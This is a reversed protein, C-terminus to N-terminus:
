KAARALAARAAALTMPSEARFKMQAGAVAPSAAVTKVYQQAFAELTPVVFAAAAVVQNFPAPILGNIPPAALTTLVANVYGEVKKVTGASQDAPLNSSLGSAAQQALMLDGHLMAATAPPILAPYQQAVQVLMNDLATAANSADTVIQQPTMAQLATCGALAALTLASSAFLARRHNSM